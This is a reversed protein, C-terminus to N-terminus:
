WALEGSSAGTAFAVSARIPNWAYKDVAMWWQDEDRALRCWELFKGKCKVLFCGLMIWGDAIKDEQMNENRSRCAINKKLVYYM